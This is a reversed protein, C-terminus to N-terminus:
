RGRRGRLEEGGLKRGGEKGSGGEQERVEQGAEEGGAGGTTQEGEQNGRAGSAVSGAGGAAPLLGTPDQFDHLFDELVDLM